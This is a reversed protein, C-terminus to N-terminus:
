NAMENTVPRKGLSVTLAPKKVDAAKEVMEAVVAAPVLAVLVLVAVLHALDLDALDVVLVAELAPGEVPTVVVPVQVPAAEQVQVMEAPAEEPRHAVAATAAMAAMALIVMVKVMEAETVEAVTATAAAKDLEAVKIAQLDALVTVATETEAMDTVQAMVM